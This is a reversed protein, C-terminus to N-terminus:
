FVFGVKMLFRRLAQGPLAHTLADSFNLDRHIKTVKIEFNEVAEQVWMQKTTVHKIKKAGNRLLIGKCANADLLVEMNASQDMKRTLQDIGIMEAIGKVTANLEAEGSSLAVNSQLKSWHAVTRGNITLVGGSTSRRTSKDGAWDSDTHTRIDLQEEKTESWKMCNICRPYDKLYRLVKKIGIEANVTPKAMQKSLLRAVVSLDPRDQAMYNIRAIARRVIKARDNDLLEGDETDAAVEESWPNDVGRCSEMGWEQLLINRHKGDGEIELGRGTLRITRNLYKVEQGEKDLMSMKIDYKEKLARFLWSLNARSGSCLFDDVHVVVLTDRSAHWFVAPQLASCEFGLGTM